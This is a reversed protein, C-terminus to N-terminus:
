QGVLETSTDPLRESSSDPPRAPYLAARQRARRYEQPSTGYKKKFGRCFASANTFGAVAQVEKVSMGTETLLRAARLFIQEQAYAKISVRQHCAFIHQLRSPSLNAAAALERLPTRPNQRLLEAVAVVRQDLVALSRNGNFSM